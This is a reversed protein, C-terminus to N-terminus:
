MFIQEYSLKNRPIECAGIRKHIPTRTASNNSRSSRWKV